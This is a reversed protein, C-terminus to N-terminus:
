HTEGISLCSLSFHGLRRHWLLSNPVASIMAQPSHSSQTASPPSTISYLPGSSNCRLLKNRTHLDKVCFGFPDFEVSVWNDITFQRVSILNKIISPCVLVKNLHLPRTHSPLSYYGIAKTPISSGDGVVVSPFSSANFLSHLTGPQATLHSTAGTDMYWSADNPDPMTMTGFAAAPLQTPQSAMPSPGLLGSAPHTTTLNAMHPQQPWYRQHSHPFSPPSQYWPPPMQWNPTWQWQQRGRGRNNNRGRGRGRGGYSNGKNYNNDRHGGTHNNHGSSTTYLVSQSTSDLSVPARTHTQRNLRQEEEVLMSRAVAFTPFPQRHKIINIINDFKPSLGNLMYTVVLRDSVPSDVNALLDSLTKLKQCYDHVTLDGITLTCLDNDLQIARAEKNDRFLNKIILWLERASCRTKLVTDLLSSSITGYIWMKVLGDREKWSIDEPNMPLSTGDLHGSVGFSFCHTEFLERWADYNIKTM